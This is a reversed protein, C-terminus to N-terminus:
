EDESQEQFGFLGRARAYDLWGRVTWERPEGGKGDGSLAFTIDYGEANSFVAFVYFGTLVPTGGEVEEGWGASSATRELIDEVARQSEEPTM